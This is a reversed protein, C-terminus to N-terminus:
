RGQSEHNGRPPTGKSPEEVPKTLSEQLQTLFQEVSNNRLMEDLQSRYTVITSVGQVVIDYVKWRKDHKHLKYVILIKKDKSILETPIEIQTKKKQTIAPKFVVKEDTYLMLKERCSQKLHEVFLQTFKNQQGATLRTWNKRGLALKAMLPFDFIRTVIKTIKVNRANPDIDKRQLLSIVAGVTTRIMEEASQEVPKPADAMITQGVMLVGLVACCPHKM